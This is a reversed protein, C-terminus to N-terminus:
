LAWEPLIGSKWIETLGVPVELFPMFYCGASPFSMPNPYQGVAGLSQASMQWAPLWYLGPWSLAPFRLQQQQHEQGTSAGKSASTGLGHQMLKHRWLQLGIESCTQSSVSGFEAGKARYWACPPKAVDRFESQFQNFFQLGTKRVKTSPM